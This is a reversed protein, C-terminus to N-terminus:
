PTWHHPSSVQGEMAISHLGRHVAVALFLLQSYTSPLSLSTDYLIQSKATGRCSSIGMTARVVSPAWFSSCSMSARPCSASSSAAGRLIHAGSWGQECTRGTCAAASSTRRGTIQCPLSASARPTCAPLHGLRPDPCARPSPCGTCRCLWSPCLCHRQGASKTQTRQHTGLEPRPMGQLPATDQSPDLPM